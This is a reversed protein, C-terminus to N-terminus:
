LETSPNGPSLYTGAVACVPWTVHALCAEGVSGHMYTAGSLWREDDVNM